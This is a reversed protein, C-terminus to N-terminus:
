PNYTGFYAAPVEGVIVTENALVKTSVTVTDTKGHYLLTLDATVTVYVRHCTQNLGASEFASEVNVSLGGTGIVYLKLPIGRGSFMGRGIVSGLPIQLQVRFDEMEKALAETLGARFVALEKTNTSMSLIRGGDDRLIDTLNEADHLIELDCVANEIAATAATEAKNQALAGMASFLAKDFFYYTIGLLLLVTLIMGAWHRNKRKKM